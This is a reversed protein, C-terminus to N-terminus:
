GNGDAGSNTLITFTELVTYVDMGQIDQYSYGAKMLTREMMVRKLAPEDMSAFGNM